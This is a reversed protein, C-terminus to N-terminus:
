RASLSDSALALFDELSLEEGRTRPGRGRRALAAEWVRREGLPALANALTKRRMRFAHSALVLARERLDPDPVDKRPEIEVVSSVVKPRPRFAGPRLDFLIRATARAAIRISLYGYADEGPRAVLRRAVERQVTAIIRGISGPEELAAVLIPTAANYPLNSVLTAPGQLGAEELWLGFSKALVDGCVVRVRASSEFEESLTRARAPDIEIALLKAVRAAFPRTLAGEGPGVEVVTDQPRLRAAEVIQVATEGRVLFHQGWRKRAPIV